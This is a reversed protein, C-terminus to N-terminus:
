WKAPTAKAPHSHLAVDEFEAAGNDLDDTTGAAGCGGEPAANGRPGDLESCWSNAPSTLANSRHNVPVSSWSLSNDSSLLNAVM